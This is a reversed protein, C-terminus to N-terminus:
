LIPRGGSITQHHPIRNALHSVRVTGKAAASLVESETGPNARTDNDVNSPDRVLKEKPDLDLSKKAVHGLFMVSAGLGASLIAILILTSM